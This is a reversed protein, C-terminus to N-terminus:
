FKCHTRSCPLISLSPLGTASCPLPKPFILACSPSLAVHLQLCSKMSQWKSRYNKNPCLESWGPGVQRRLQWLKKQMLEYLCCACLCIYVKVTEGFYNLHGLYALFFNPPFSHHHCSISSSAVQFYM